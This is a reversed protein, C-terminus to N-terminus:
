ADVRLRCIPKHVNCQLLTCSVYLPTRNVLTSLRKPRAVNLPREYVRQANSRSLRTFAVM